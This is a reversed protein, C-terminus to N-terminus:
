RMILEEILNNIRLKKEKVIPVDMYLNYPTYNCMTCNMKVRNHLTNKLIFVIKVYFLQFFLHFSNIPLCKGEFFLIRALLFM